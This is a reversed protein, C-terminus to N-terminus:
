WRKWYCGRNEWGQRLARDLDLLMSLIAEIEPLPISAM